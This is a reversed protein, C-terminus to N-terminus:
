ADRGGFLGSTLSWWVLAPQRERATPSSAKRRRLTPQAIVSCRHAARSRAANVTGGAVALRHASPDTVHIVVARVGGDGRPLAPRLVAETGRQVGDPVAVGEGDRSPLARPVVRRERDLQEVARATVGRQAITGWGLVLSTGLLHRDDFM